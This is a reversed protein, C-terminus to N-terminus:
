HRKWQEFSEAFDKNSDGDAAGNCKGSDWRHDSIEEKECTIKTKPFALLWLAGFRDQLPPQTVQTVQHRRLFSQLLCSAHAPMNDHHLQWDGAAWLQLQKQWIADRLCCLVNLYCAKNITQGPPTYQSPCCRGLWLVCNVHDQDQQSKAAGKKPTSFWSVEM